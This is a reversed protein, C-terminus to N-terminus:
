LKGIKEFSRFVFAVIKSAKEFVDYAISLSNYKRKGVINKSVDLAPSFGSGQYVDRKHKSFRQLM